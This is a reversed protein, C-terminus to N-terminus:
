LVKTSNKTLDVISAKNITKLSVKVGNTLGKQAINWAIVGNKGSTYIKSIALKSYLGQDDRKTGNIWFYYGATEINATEQTYFRDRDYKKHKRLKSNTLMVKNQVAAINKKCNQKTKYGRVSHLLSGYRVRANKASYFNWYYKKDKGKFIEFRPYTSM